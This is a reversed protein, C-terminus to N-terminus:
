LEDSLSDEAAALNSSKVNIKPPLGEQSVRVPFSLKSNIPGAITGVLGNHTASVNQLVVAHGVAFRAAAAEFEDVLRERLALAEPSARSNPSAADGGNRVVYQVLNALEIKDFLRLNKEPYAPQGLPNRLELGECQPPELKAGLRLLLRLTPECSEGCGMQAQVEKPIGWTAAVVMMPTTGGKNARELDAGHAVLVDLLYDLGKQAAYNIASMGQFPEAANPDAGAHLLLTVLQLDNERWVDHREGPGQMVMLLPAVAGGGADPDAGAELLLRVCEASTRSRVMVAYTLPLFKKDIVHRVETPADGNVIDDPDTVKVEGDLHPVRKWHEAQSGGELWMKKTKPGEAAGGEGHPHGGRALAIALVKAHGLEAAADVLRSYYNYNDWDADGPKIETGDSRVDDGATPYDELAKLMAAEDGPFEGRAPKSKSYAELNMSAPRVQAAARAALAAIVLGRFMSKARPAQHTAQRYGAKRDITKAVFNHPSELWLIISGAAHALDIFEQTGCFVGCSKRALTIYSVLLWPLAAPCALLVM